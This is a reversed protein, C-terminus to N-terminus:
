APRSPVAISSTASSRKCKPFSPASHTGMLPPQGPKDSYVAGFREELFRWDIARALKVLAHNIDIIQDLRSRFLDQNGSERRERPRMACSRHRPSPRFHAIFGKRGLSPPPHDFILLSGRAGSRLGISRM